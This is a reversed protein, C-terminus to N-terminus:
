FIRLEGRELLLLREKWGVGASFGGLGMDKQIVRHCPIIIPLPNSWLARGVAKSANPKGIQEAVWKYSRVQGYPIQMAKDWVMREFVSAGRLDLPYSFDMQLGCFYGALDVALDRFRDPDRVFTVGFREEWAAFHLAPDAEELLLCFLGLETASVFLSAQGVDIHSYFIKLNDTGEAPLSGQFDFICFELNLLGDPL